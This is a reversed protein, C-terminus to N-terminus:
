TGGPHSVFEAASQLSEEEAQPLAELQRQRIVKKTAPSRAPILKGIIVNEKLGRLHDVKGQISAETLVRTTEQFSAASLWSDTNLAVRTIGLLVPHATAPEGGEALVEANTEEYRFRDFLERPVLDTDGASDVRVKSLMQRVIVEIHKDNIHVGQSCYVKQVEDVIYRQTAERGLLSLIEHPNLAGETLREGVRVYDGSKVRIRSTAPIMYRREEMEQYRVIVLGEELTVEGAVRAAIAREPTTAMTSSAEGTEDAPLALVTGMDVWQGNSVNLQWGEPVPYEDRFENENSVEVWRAGDEENVEVVGEIESMVAQNKPIRAEFLEEVRPLGSTIDLGAVGGTHFTRLTLQTGPEGISQAAIIGVATDPEVLRDRALDWGYCACCVGHKSQCTLPSRVYVRNLGSTLISQLEKDRIVQNYEVIVEGTEPDAIPAAALRGRLRDAFSPLIDREEETPRYVWIGNSTGCDKEQTIVDQTVDVLRRTLYGSSSTRLATDALGKRAGHTSIFYELPTLGERLSSKIPFDIIKGAPNTMLGRMGAMQRIQSINGKAGSTAMMYISGYRDMSKSISETVLDTAETWIEVTASYREDDTILGREYQEDLLRVREETEQIIRKKDPPPEVDSMAISVGSRSAYKFGTSKLRDLVQAVLHNDGMVRYSRDVIERLAGKDVVENYFGLDEPLAENFIIRGVSTKLWSSPPMRVEVEAHLDVLGVEYALKAEEHSGFRMGEGRSGPRIMTLYYCGFVMDLTPVVVPEGSSPLLQNHESLMEETAEMVAARSLPVHVAMQDGDFDANFATCVLPHIQIASGDVLVPYFAQVSLRHLTPARNLLVPHEKVVEELIEFIEPRAREVQRRASKINAASGDRLLRNMVFPKFLELAIRRPLGCQGFRLQPGVVIVSRGSYDVRKGLLNQRFRGQKGRLMDSLSKTRRSGNTARNSRNSDILADVAEQLMRKENRIIIEPAGIEMLHRLRNNRNIVRRYLDNLDSTAFRGGDLQVMPRLDPPLVPLVRLIMWQPKNGSRRLAEVLQLRKSAKMRKQGSASHAEEMLQLRLAELDIQSLLSEIAEAGMAAEFIGGYGQQRLEQYQAESLISGRRLQKLQEITSSVSEEYGARETALDRRLNNIEEVSAEDQEMHAIRSEIAEKRSSLWETSSDELQGMAKKLADEDVSTVIYSAFYLVRELNRATIDLLLGIRSPIGRSFWIHAVPSVLEIHGMRERRVKARAVEVGCKDCIQGKFRIGRYKGCACEFDKTPGFIKECFLGGREPKLTRYNITEPKTVEGYSRNRIQEPSALSIRVADFDNVELM